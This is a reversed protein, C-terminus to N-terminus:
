VEMNKIQDLKSKLSTDYIDNNVRVIFGAVLSEDISYEIRMPAKYKDTIMKIITEKNKDNLEKASEVNVRTIFNHEVLIQQYNSKINDLDRFVRNEYIIELFNIFENSFEKSLIDRVLDFKSYTKLFYENVVKDSNLIDEFNDLESLFALPNSEGIEFLATAYMETSITM